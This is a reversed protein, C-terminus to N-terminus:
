EELLRGINYVIQPTISNGAQKYLEAESTVESASLYHEDEYGMTRWAELPTYKRITYYLGESQNYESLDFMKHLKDSYEGQVGHEFPDKSVLLYGHTGTKTITFMNEFPEKFIRGNANRTTFVPNSVPIVDIHENEWKSVTEKRRFDTIEETEGITHLIKRSSVGRRYGVIYVRKRNQAVGFDTSNFVRWEIDYGIKSFEHIIVNFTRVSFNGVGKKLKSQVFPKAIFADIVESEGVYNEAYFSLNQIFIDHSKLTLKSLGSQEFLKVSAALEYIGSEKDMTSINSLLGIVNELIFYKPKIIDTLRVVEKFLVGRDDLMGLQKGGVSFSQCNHVAINNAVYSNDDAVEFNYVTNEFTDDYELSLVPYWVMGDLYVPAKNKDLLKSFSISYTGDDAIEITYATKYLKQIAQGFTYIFERNKSTVTHLGNDFNLTNKSNLFGDIVQYLLDNPLDLVAALLEPNHNDKGFKSIIHLLMNAKQNPEALFMGLLYADDSTLNLRNKSEMNQAFGVYHEDPQLNKAKVWKPKSGIMTYDEQETDWVKSMKRVYYPHEETVKTLPSGQVKLHYIGKKHKTMPVVVPKFRNKHTLVLDGKQIEEIRKLGDKTTILTGSSFCPFGATIIDVKGKLEEAQSATIATVDPYFVEDETPKHIAKYSKVAHTDVECFGVSEHGAKTLGLSFGGIGAFLDLYKM